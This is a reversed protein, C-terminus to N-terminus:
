ARFLARAPANQCPVRHAVAQSPITCRAHRLRGDGVDGVDAVRAVRGAYTDSLRERRGGHGGRSRRAPGEAGPTASGMPSGDSTGTAYGRVGVPGAHDHPTPPRTRLPSDPRRRTAEIPALRPM